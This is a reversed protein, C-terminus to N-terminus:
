DILSSFSDIRVANVSFLVWSVIVCLSTDLIMLLSRTIVDLHTSRRSYSSIHSITTVRVFKFSRHQKDALLFEREVDYQRADANNIIFVRTMLDRCKLTEALLFM